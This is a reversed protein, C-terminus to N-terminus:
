FRRGWLKEQVRRDEEAKRLAERWDREMRETINEQQEDVPSDCGRLGIFRGWRRRKTDLDVLHRRNPTEATTTTSSSFGCWVRGWAIPCPYMWRQQGADVTQHYWRALSDLQDHTLLHYQLLSKPFEPHARGTRVSILPILESGLHAISAHLQKQQPTQPRRFVIKTPQSPSLHRQHHCRKHIPSRPRVRATTPSDNSGVEASPKPLIHRYTTSQFQTSLQNTPLAQIDASNQLATASPRTSLRLPLRVVHEIIPSQMAELGDNANQRKLSPIKRHASPSIPPLNTDRPSRPDEHALGSMPSAPTDREAAPYGSVMAGNRKHWPVSRQRQVATLPTEQLSLPSPTLLQFQVSMRRLADTASSNQFSTVLKPLHMSPSILPTVPM